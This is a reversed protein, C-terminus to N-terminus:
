RTKREAPSPPIRLGPQPPCPPRPGGDGDVRDAPVPVPVCPLTRASVTHGNGIWPMTRGTQGTRERAHLWRYAGTCGHAARGRGLARRWAGTRPCKASRTRTMGSNASRIKLSPSGPLTTSRTAPARTAPIWVPGGRVHPFPDNLACCAPTHWQHPIEPGVASSSHQGRRTAYPSHGTGSLSICPRGRMRLSEPPQSRQGGPLRLRTPRAMTGATTQSGPARPPSLRYALAAPISYASCQRSTLPCCDGRRSQHPLVNLATLWTEPVVDCVCM